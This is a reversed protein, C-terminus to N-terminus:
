VFGRGCGADVTRFSLGLSSTSPSKSPKRDAERADDRAPKWSCSPSVARSLSWSGTSGGLLFDRGDSESRVISLRDCSGAEGAPLPLLLDLKKVASLEIGGGGRGPEARPFLLRGVVLSPVGWGVGVVGRRGPPRGCLPEIVAGPFRLMLVLRGLIVPVVGLLADDVRSEVCTRAVCGRACLCFTWVVGFGRGNDLLLVILARVGFDLGANAPSKPSAIDGGPVAVGSVDEGSRSFVGVMPVGCVLRFTDLEEAAKRSCIALAFAARRESTVTSAFSVGLFVDFEDPASRSCIAFALSAARRAFV